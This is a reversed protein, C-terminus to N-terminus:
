LKAMRTFRPDASFRGGGALAALADLREPALYKSVISAQLEAPPLGERNLMVRYDRLGELTTAAFERALHRYMSRFFRRKTEKRAFVHRPFDTLLRRTIMRMAAPINGQAVTLSPIRVDHYFMEKALLGDREYSEYDPTGKMPQLGNILPIDCWSSHRELMGALMEPTEDPHGAILLGFVMIGAKDLLRYVEPYSAAEVSGSPGKNWGRLFEQRDTEYGVLVAKCGARAMEAPLRPEKLVSDVRMLAMWDLNVGSTAIARSLKMYYEPPNGFGDGAFLLQTVGMASLQKLDGVVNAVSRYRQVGKWMRSVLCFSCSNTCGRSEEYSATLGRRGTFQNYGRLDLLDWRPFPLADLDPVQERPPTSVTCGEELFSVGKVGRLGSGSVLCDLTEPLTAEAEGHMIVSAGRALWEDPYFSPHCGGMLVPIDPRLRRILRLTMEANLAMIASSCSIGIVDAGAALKGFVRLDPQAALPDLLTVEWGPGACAALLPLSVPPHLGWSLHFDNASMFRPVLRLPAMLLLKM